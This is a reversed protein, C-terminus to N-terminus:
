GGRLGFEAALLEYSRRRAQHDHTITVVIAEDAGYAAATDEIEARVQAPTGTLRPRSTAEEGDGHLEFYRAATEPPPVQGPRGSRLLEFAMRWSLSLRTAEEETAAVLVRVGVSIRPAELRRGAVFSQRYIGANPVGRPNIFDAFSYPLGLEGAWLASQESSGLLWPDPLEPEGPLTAALRALPHDAPFSREFYALLESLQEPFDDPLPRSRDRQLAQMTMQDTGPARGIGLDIRGPFLGALVGFSEAVKLPSYHPLMVGGSGIRMRETAAAIPGILVEPSPGAVLGGGHHEALWYRHYGLRDALQALDISNRLAQAGTSGESIPTQDLVSLRLDAPV